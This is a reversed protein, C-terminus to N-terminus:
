LEWGTRYARRLLADAQPADVFQMRQHDWTQTGGLRLAANGLLVMETLRSAYDFNSLAAGEGRCAALWEAHQGPSRPLTAPPAEYEAFQEEPLLVFEACYPDTCLMTGRQGVLLTGNDPLAHGAALEAPPKKGGDYWTLSTAPREGRAPFEYRIISWNPPSESTGGGSQTHITRPDELELAWFAMDANHCAMDGLAGTGFDWWGRWNFPLYAPHYPREPAPGLWLDWAVHAPTPPTEAPRAAGQPWIPRDTWVHVESIPGLAGSRVIEVARRSGDLAHGHNGMQTAVGHEAALQRLVRAEHVSHTLPKECYVHKGLRLAMAAAVAHTHDPTSVVVADLSPLEELLRRFDHFRRARPFKEYAAAARQDDVDAIAVIDVGPDAAVFGLNSAGRGGAGIIGLQLRDNPAVLRALARRTSTFLGTGAVLAAKLFDRRRDLRGM